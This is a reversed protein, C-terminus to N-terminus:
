NLASKAHQLSYFAAHTAECHVHGPLSDAPPPRHCIGGAHAEGPPSRSPLCESVRLQWWRQWNAPSHPDLLQIHSNSKFHRLARVGPAPPGTGSSLPHVGGNGYKMYQVMM